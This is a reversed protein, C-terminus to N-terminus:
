HGVRKGLDTEQAPQLHPKFNGRLGRWLRTPRYIQHRRGRIDTTARM